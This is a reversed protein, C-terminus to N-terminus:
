PLNITCEEKMLGDSLQPIQKEVNSNHCDLEWIKIQKVSYHYMEWTACQYYKPSPCMFCSCQNSYNCFYVIIVAKVTTNLKDLSKM